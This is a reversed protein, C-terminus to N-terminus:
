PSAGTPRLEYGDMGIGLATRRVHILEIESKIEQPSPIFFESEVEDATAMCGCTSEYMFSEHGEEPGHLVIVPQPDTLGVRASLQPSVDVKLLHRNWRTSQARRVIVESELSYNEIDQKSRLA